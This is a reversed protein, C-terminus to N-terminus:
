RIPWRGAARVRARAWCTTATSRRMCATSACTHRRRWRMCGGRWWWARRLATHMPVSIGVFRARALLEPPLADDLKEVALDRALPAFGARELFGLPSALGIPQHGLEYCSVLVVEGPSRMTSSASVLARIGTGCPRQGARAPAPAPEPRPRRRCTTPRSSRARASFFKEAESQLLEQAQKSMLDLRYENILM